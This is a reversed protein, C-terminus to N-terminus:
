VADMIFAVLMIVVAVAGIIAGILVDMIVGKSRVQRM